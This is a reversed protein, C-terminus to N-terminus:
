ELVVEAVYKPAATTGHNEYVGTFYVHPILVVTGDAVKDATTLTGDALVIAVGAGEAIKAVTAATTGSSVLAIAIGGKFMRNFAEGPLTPVSETSAPWTSPMKVNTALVFGAFKDITGATFATYRGTASGLMVAQGPVVNASSTDLVAPAVDYKDSITPYGTMLMQIQKNIIM